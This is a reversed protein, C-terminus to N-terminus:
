RAPGHLRPWADEGPERERAGTITPTVGTWAALRAFAADRDPPALAALGSGHTGQPQVLELADTAAGVSFRGGTWPDWEGYVFIIRSGRTEVWSAIDRMAGPDIVPVPEGVPLTGAYDADSFRV